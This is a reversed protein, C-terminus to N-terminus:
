FNKTNIKFQVEWLSLILIRINGNKFKSIVNFNRNKIPVYESGKLVLDFKKHHFSVSSFPIRKLVWLSQGDTQIDRVPRRIDRGNTFHSKWKNSKLLSMKLVATANLFIKRRVITLWKILKWPFEIISFKWIDSKKIYWSMEASM